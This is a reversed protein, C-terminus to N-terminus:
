DCRLTVVPDVKMARRAPLYAAAIAAAIVVAIGAAYAAADFVNIRLMSHAMMRAVALAAASGLLAGVVALRLSQKLVMGAIRSNAAGLAIRIGIEKRRQAVVYSSVGFIGSV